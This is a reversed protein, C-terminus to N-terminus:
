RVAGDMIWQRIQNIDSQAIAPRNLPMRAGSISAANELKQILYSNDPDGVAVLQVNAQGNQNSFQGVMESYSTDADALSLAAAQTINDHCGATACSPTFVVTQIQDLTPGIVVPTTVTFQAVFDGGETDDGSPFGGSFEGDLANADLDMIISAGTGRLRVTYTDDALNVGSLDMTATQPNAAPVSISTAAIATGSSASLNFTNANVTSADLERDFGAIIQTPGTTLTSGPSVSLSSVRIPTSAQVRDDIAGATIWQRIIDIDSQAVSGNPPMQGGSVGPGELKQILYSMDPNTPNVRQTGADQSSAVGVLMAYSNNADLNLGIAPNAGAHCGSTACSPTFVNTQIESFNPNFGSPPPTTGPPTTGPPPTVIGSNFRDFEEDYSGVSCAYTCALALLLLLANQVPFRGSIKMNLKSSLTATLNVFKATNINDDPAVFITVRM